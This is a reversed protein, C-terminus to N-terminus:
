RTSSFGTYANTDSETNDEKTYSDEEPQALSSLSAINLVLESNGFDFLGFSDLCSAVAGM